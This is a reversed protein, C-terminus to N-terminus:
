LLPSPCSWGKVAGLSPISLSAITKFSIEITLATVEGTPRRVTLKIYQQTLHPPPSSATAHSPSHRARPPSTHSTVSAISGSAASTLLHLLLLYVELSPIPPALSVKVLHSGNIFVSHHYQLHSGNLLVTHHSRVTTLHLHLWLVDEVERLGNLSWSSQDNQHRSQSAIAGDKHQVAPAGPETHRLRSSSLSPCKLYDHQHHPRCARAAAPFASLGVSWFVCDVTIKNLVSLHASYSNYSIISEHCTCVIIAAMVGVLSFTRTLSTSVIVSSPASSVKTSM